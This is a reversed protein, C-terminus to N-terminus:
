NVAVKLPKYGVPAVVYIGQCLPLELNEDYFKFREVIRGKFDYIFTDCLAEVGIIKLGGPVNTVSFTKLAINNIGTDKNIFNFNAPINSMEPQTVNEYTLNSYNGNGSVSTGIYIGWASVPCGNIHIDHLELTNIKKSNSNSLSIGHYRSDQIHVREIRLNNIDYYYGAQVRISPQWNGWLDGKVGAGGNSTGCRAIYIDSMAFWSDGAFGTGQFDATVRAGCEMGDTISIHHAKNGRGGFFGLSSARWNHEATCYSFENNVTYNGTSWSAMDDDGNNRFSCNRVICNRSGSCLNVGDAYNNRFRCNEFILGDAAMGGYDGIWAGCEFHDIRVDRILSNRGFSGQLGKGIGYSENNNLYRMNSASNVSFGQLTIGSSYSEFGRNSFTSRNSADASFYIHTRWMGAGILRTNDGNIIIRRPVTYYGEPLYITKGTNSNIFSSLTSGDGQYMVKPEPLEDFTVADAIKELEIFDITCPHGDNNDKVLSFIDGKKVESPLVMYVEDFRMRAFKTGSPDNDPHKTASNSVSFYQWAWFSDLNIDCLKTGNVYFGISTKLGKGDTGDPVSFRLSLADADADCIWEIRDNIKELTAAVNNSAESQLLAQSYQEPAHLWTVQAGECKGPEAEYRLYPRSIYGYGFADGEDSVAQSKGQFIVTSTLILFLLNKKM